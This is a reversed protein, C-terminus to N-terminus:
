LHEFDMDEDQRSRRFPPPTYEAAPPRAPAMRPPPLPRVPPPPPAVVVPAPPALAPPAPVFAPPHNWQVPIDAAKHPRHYPVVAMRPRLRARPAPTWAPAPPDSRLAPEEVGAAVAHRHVAHRGDAVRQHTPHSAWSVYHPPFTWAWNRLDPYWSHYGDLGFRYRNVVAYGPGVEHLTHLACYKDPLHDAPFYEYKVHPCTAAARQHSDECMLIGIEHGKRPGFDHPPVRALAPKMFDAWIPAAVTGGYAGYTVTYDDNGTWVCALLDPTFGVFWADRHSDTTGTKGAAPRNIQALTATGAQIVKELMGIMAMATQESIARQRQPERYDLLFRGDPTVVTKVATPTIHVGMNPLTAVAGALELPTVETSGLAIPLNLDFHESLGMQQAMRVVNAVGLQNVLRLAPVDRSFQVAKWIPMAGWFRGDANKPTYYQGQWVQFTAPADVITSDPSYGLELATSYDFIKMTSGPQRVAQWARNFQDRVSWKRGGVMARVYGTRPEIAVLAGQHVNYGQNEASVIGNQVAREALRQMRTDLTTYIRLGGKYLLAPPIQQSLQHIVYATFYPYKLLAVQQRPRQVRLPKRMAVFMTKANIMRCREMRSLVLLERYRASQPNVQPSYTTPAPPLGAIMACQPLNLQWVHKGFYTQAAAEVGYAGSGLYIENMYLELIEPKSFHREIQVALLMERMKREVTQERSLFVGRALQMTLTSAGETPGGTYISLASRLVGVPDVGDHEYFRADESALVAATLYKPIKSLPVWVRNEHFLTAILKGDSSYIRTTLSPQHHALRRVDPLGLSYHRVLEDVFGVAACVVAVFVLVFAVVLHYWGARPRKSRRLKWM